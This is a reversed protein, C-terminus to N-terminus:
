AAAYRRKKKANKAIERLRIEELFSEKKIRKEEKKRKKAVRSSPLNCNKKRTRLLCM